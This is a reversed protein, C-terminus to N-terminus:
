LRARFMKLIEVRFIASVFMIEIANLNAACVLRLASNHIQLSTSDSLDDSLRRTERVEPLAAVSGHHIETLFHHQLSLLADTEKREMPMSLYDAAPVHGQM